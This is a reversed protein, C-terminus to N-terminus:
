GPSSEKGTTPVEQADSLEWDARPASGRPFAPRIVRCWRLEFVLDEAVLDRYSEALRVVLRSTAQDPLEKIIKSDQVAFCKQATPGKLEEILNLWRDIAGQAKAMEPTIVPAVPPAFGPGRIPVEAAGPPAGTPGTGPGPGGPPPGSPTPGGPPTGPLGQPIGMPPPPETRGPKGPGPAAPGPAGPGTAPRDPPTVRNLERGAEERRRQAYLLLASRAANTKSAALTAQINPGVPPPTKGKSDGGCGAAMAAVAAALAMPGFGRM